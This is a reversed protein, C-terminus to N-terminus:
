AAAPVVDAVAVLEFGPIDGALIQAHLRGIRGCGLVGIRRVQVPAETSTSFGADRTSM